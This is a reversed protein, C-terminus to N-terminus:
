LLDVEWVEENRLMVVAPLTKECYRRYWAETQLGKSCCNIQPKEWTQIGKSYLNKLAFITKDGIPVVANKGTGGKLKINLETNPNSRKIEEVFSQPLVFEGNDGYLRFSKDAIYLEVVDPFDEYNSGRKCSLLGCGGAAYTYGRLEDTTWKTFAGQQRGYIYQRIIKISSALEYNDGLASKIKVIKSLPIKKRKNSKWDIDVVFEVVDLGTKDDTTKYGKSEKECQPKDKWVSSNCNVKPVANLSSPLLFAFLFPLFFNKYM